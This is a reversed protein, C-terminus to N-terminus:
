SNKKLLDLFTEQVIKPNNPAAYIKKIVESNVLWGLKLEDFFLIEKNPKKPRYVANDLPSYDSEAPKEIVWGFPLGTFYVIETKKALIQKKNREWLIEDVWDYPGHIRGKM